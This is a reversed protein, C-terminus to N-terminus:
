AKKKKAIKAYNDTIYYIIAYLILSFIIAAVPLSLNLPALVNYSWIWDIIRLLMGLAAISSVTEGKEINRYFVAACIGAILAYLSVALLEYIAIATYGAAMMAPLLQISQTLGPLSCIALIIGCVLLAIKGPIKEPVQQKPQRPEQKKGANKGSQHRVSDPHIIQDITHGCYTCFRADDPLERGCHQCFMNENRERMFEM